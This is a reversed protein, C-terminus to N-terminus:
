KLRDAVKNLLAQYPGSRIKALRQEEELFGDGANRVVYAQCQLRHADAGASVIDVKVRVVTGAGYHTDVIGQYAIDTMRSGEKQFVMPHGKMSGGVYGEQQFVQATVNAIEQAMRSKILVSAFSAGSPKTAGCGFGALALLVVALASTTVARLKSFLVTSSQMM